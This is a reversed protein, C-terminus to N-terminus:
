AREAVGKAILGEKVLREADKAFTRMGSESGTQLVSQLEQLRNERIINAVAPTNVLIERVAVRGGKIGPLLQQAIVAKLSLSLQTRIQSQQHPPFVDVIRDVSQVANPTHLTAFILHGTEALTLAAAITSLDRMEGVMVINPDQRLVHRLASDFSSFDSQLERQRIVCRGLPFLFEIPDELTIVSAARTQNIHQIMAALSTSKGCGTPGTVLILGSPLACLPEAIGELGIDKLSPIAAPILRAVLGVNGREFHCNVRLREGGELALSLDLERESSFRKWQEDSLVARVFAEAAEPTVPESEVETLVGDIRLIVAKGVVIHVDSASRKHAEEFVLQPTLKM